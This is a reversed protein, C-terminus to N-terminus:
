EHTRIGDGAKRLFAGASVLHKEGYIGERTFGSVALAPEQKLSVVSDLNCLRQLFNINQLSKIVPLLTL